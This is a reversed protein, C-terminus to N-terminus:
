KEFLDQVHLVFEEKSMIVNVASVFAPATLGSPLGLKEAVRDRREASGESGSLGLSFLDAKTVKEGSKAYRLAIDTADGKYKTFEIKYSGGHREFHDRIDSIVKETVKGSGAARNVIFIHQM